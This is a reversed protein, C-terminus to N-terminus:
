MEGRCTVEKKFVGYKCFVYNGIVTIISVVIKAPFPLMELHSILLWLLLNEVALTLMRLSAFSFLERIVNNESRFVWRRNLVYATLVAGTWALTNAALYPLQAILFASYFLYNVGTTVGGCILYAALEKKSQTIRLNM